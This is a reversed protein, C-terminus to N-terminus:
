KIKVGTRVEIKRGRVEDFLAYNPPPYYNGEPVILHSEERRCNKHSCKTTDKLKLPNYGATPVYFKDASDPKIYATFSTQGYKIMDMEVAILDISLMRASDHEFDTANSLFAQMCWSNDHDRHLLSIETCRIWESREYDTYILVSTSIKNKDRGMSTLDLLPPAKPEPAYIPEGDANTGIERRRM